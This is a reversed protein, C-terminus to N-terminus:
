VGNMTKKSYSQTILSFIRGWLCNVPARSIGIAAFVDGRMGFFPEGPLLGDEPLRKSRGWGAIKVRDGVRGPVGVPDRSLLLNEPRLDRHVCRASDHAHALGKLLAIAIQRADHETYTALGAVAELLHGGDLLQTLFTKKFPSHHDRSVFLSEPQIRWSTPALDSM